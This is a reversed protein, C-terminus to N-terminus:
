SAAKKRAARPHASLSKHDDLGCITLASGRLAFERQLEQLKSMVTHDVLRAHSLDLIVEKAHRYKEIKLKLTIWSSFVAANNVTMEVTDDGREDVSVSPWFLSAPTAGNIMHIIFKVGIGIFIGVLLDTALVAILTSVFVILQERGVKYMHLFERPSALRFGTYVLMAALASLPIRHILGPLLAVFLLLFISHYCNAFRTRAGNDINAKSRVIESIMPLGGILASITNGIGVALVDRNMNTRRKWPDLLDVAKASLMSELTGILAFMTVWYWGAGTKLGSFDPTAIANLMNGPVNVLFRDSLSHEHGLFSYTHSHELDFVWGSALFMSVIVVVIQGPIRKIFKNKILPLTFLILLGLGGIIAIEPNMNQLSHPIEALLELPEKGEPKVGLMVHIQKSMIIVGIASLLGHVASTPFFEGLIGSRFVGFLIQIVGAAVGVGLVMKYAAFDHEPDAGNTWGFETVAGLVIVILGAAPGKITLESNSILTAVIGGVVATFIGAVAPFGSALSIGLCLPLAILFVLFGSVLDQKWFRTARSLSEGEVPVDNEAAM